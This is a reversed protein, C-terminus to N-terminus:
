KFLSMDLWSELILVSSTSSSDLPRPSAQVGPFSCPAPGTVSSNAVAMWVFHSHSFAPHASPVWSARSPPSTVCWAPQLGGLGAPLCPIQRAKGM